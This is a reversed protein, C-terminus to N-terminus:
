NGNQPDIDFHVLPPTNMDPGVTEDQAVIQESWPDRGAPCYRFPFAMALCAKFLCDFMLWLMRNSLRDNGRLRAILDHLTGRRMYEMVIIDGRQDLARRAAQISATATDVEMHDRADNDDVDDANRDPPVNNGVRLRSFLGRLRRLRSIPRAPLRLAQLVCRQVFHQAGSM